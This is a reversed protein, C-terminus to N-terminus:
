AVERHCADEARLRRELHLRSPPPSPRDLDALLDAAIPAAARPDGVV